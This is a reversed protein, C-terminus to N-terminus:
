FDLIIVVLTCFLIYLLIEYLGRLSHKNQLINQKKIPIVVLPVTILTIIFFVVFPIIALLGIMTDPMTLPDKPYVFTSFVVFGVVSTVIAAYFTIYASNKLKEM